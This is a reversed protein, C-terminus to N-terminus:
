SHCLKKRIYLNHTFTILSTSQPTEIGNQHRCSCDHTHCPPRRVVNLPLWKWPYVPNTKTRKPKICVSLATAICFRSHVHPSLRYKKEGRQKVPKLSNGLASKKSKVFSFHPTTAKWCHDRRSAERAMPQQQPDSREEAHQEVKHACMCICPIVILHSKIYCQSFIAM